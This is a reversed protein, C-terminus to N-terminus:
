TQRVAVATDSLAILARKHAQVSEPVALLESQKNHSVDATATHVFM